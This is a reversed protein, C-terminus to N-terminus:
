SSFNLLNLSCMQDRNRTRYKLVLDCLHANVAAIGMSDHFGEFKLSLIFGQYFHLAIFTVTRTAVVYIQIAREAHSGNSGIGLKLQADIQFHIHRFHQADFHSDIMGSCRMTWELETLHVASIM